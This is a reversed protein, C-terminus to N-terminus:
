SDPALDPLTVEPVAAPLELRYARGPADTWEEDVRYLWSTPTFGDADTALLDVTFRGTDDLTVVVAGQVIVDHDASRVLEEPTFRIQGTYPTGDPRLYGLAGATVTVTQVNSPWPM